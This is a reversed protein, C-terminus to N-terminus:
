HNEFGDIVFRQEAEFPMEDLHLTRLTKGMPRGKAFLHMLDAHALQRNASLDFTELNNLLTSSELTFIGQSNLNTQRLLLDRLQTDQIPSLDSPKLFNLDNFSFDLHRTNSLSSDPSLVSTFSDPLLHQGVLRLVRIKDLHSCTCLERICGYDLREPRWAVRQAYGMSLSELGSLETTLTLEFIHEDGVDQGRTDIARAVALQPVKKGEFMQEVWRSPALCRELPWHQLSGRTYAVLEEWQAEDVQEVMHDLMECLEQWLEDSSPRQLLSRLNGFVHSMVARGKSSSCTYDVDM